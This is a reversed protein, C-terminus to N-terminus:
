AEEEEKDGVNNDTADMKAGCNPCYDFKETCNDIINFNAGCVSCMIEDDYPRLQQEWEGHRVEVVDAAPTQEVLDSFDEFAHAWTGPSAITNWECEIQRKCMEVLAGREIYEKDRM